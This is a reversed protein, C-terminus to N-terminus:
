SVAKEIPAPASSVVVPHDGGLIVLHETDDQKLIVARHKIDLPLQATVSLRGQAGTTTAAGGIRLKKLAWAFAWMLGLVLALAAIVNPM